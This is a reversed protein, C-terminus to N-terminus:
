KTVQGIAWAAAQRVRADPDRQLLEILPLMAAKDEIAGLAWAAARRVDTSADGLRRVLLQVAARDEALGLGLAAVARTHATADGLADRLAAQASAHHTRGLMAASLRRVCPDADRLGGTLRPVLAGGQRDDQVWRLVAAASSDVQLADGSRSSWWGHRGDATRAALECVLPDAGRVVAFLRSLAATDDAAEAKPQRSDATSQRREAIPERRTGAEAPAAVPVVGVASLRLGVATVAISGAGLAWGLARM